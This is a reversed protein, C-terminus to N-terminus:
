GLTLLHSAPRKAPLRHGVLSLTPDQRLIGEHVSSVTSGPQIGLNSRLYGYLKRYAALAEAQRGSRYLALMLLSYLNEQTPHEEALEALPAVLSRHRGLTLSLEAHREWLELRYEELQTIAPTLAASALGELVPGRWLALAKSLQTVATDIQKTAVAREASTAYAVAADVDLEGDPVALQYGSGARRIVAPDSADALSQRLRSVCNRAVKVANGPRQDDWLADVLGSISVPRGAALLLAALTKAQRAGGLVVSSDCDGVQLPGLLRYRM